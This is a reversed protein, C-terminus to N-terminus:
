TDERVISVSIKLEHMRAQSEDERSSDQMYHPKLQGPFAVASQCYYYNM